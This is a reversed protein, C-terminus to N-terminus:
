CVWLMVPLVQKRESVCEVSKVAEKASRLAEGVEAIVVVQGVPNVFIFHAERFQCKEEGM